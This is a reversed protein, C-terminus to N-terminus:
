KRIRYDEGRMEVLQCMGAIRSTIREGLREELEDLSLNSTVIIPKQNIWRQDIINYLVQRAWDTTKEAGLDDLILLPVGAYKAILEKEGDVRFKESRSYTGRIEFLLDIVRTFKAPILKKEIVNRAISISLHTKGSGARGYFMLGKKTDRTFSESYEKAIEHAKGVHAANMFDFSMQNFIGTTIGASELMRAILAKREQEEREKAVVHACQDCYEKKTWGLFQIFKAESFKGCKGACPDPAPKLGAQAETMIKKFEIMM